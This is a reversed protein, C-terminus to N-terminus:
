SDDRLEALRAELECARARVARLEQQIATITRLTAAEEPDTTALGREILSPPPPVEDGPLYERGRVNIARLAYMPASTM